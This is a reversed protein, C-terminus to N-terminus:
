ATGSSLSRRNISAVRPFQHVYVFRQLEKLTALFPGPSQPTGKDGMGFVELTEKGLQGEVALILDPENKTIEPIAGSLFRGVSLGGVQRVLGEVMGMDVRLNRPERNHAGALNQATLDVGIRVGLHEVFEDRLNLAM